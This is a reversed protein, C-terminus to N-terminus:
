VLHLPQVHDLIDYTSSFQTNHFVGAIEAEVTSAVVHRLTKCKIYIAGNLPSQHRRRPDSSLHYHEAIRPKAEALVLYGADSDVNLIMNRGHFRLFTIPYTTVYNLLRKTKVM